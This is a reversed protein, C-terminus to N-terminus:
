NTNETAAQIDIQLHMPTLSVCMLSPKNLDDDGFVMPLLAWGPAMKFMQPCDQLSKAVIQIDNCVETLLDATLDRIENHRLSPFGCKPCSIYHMNLQSNEAVLVFPPARLPQWNCHLALADQFAGKPLAFGFEETPLSTLWTSAGKEKALGMSPSTFTVTGSKRSNTGKRKAFKMGPKSKTKQYMQQTYPARNYSPM